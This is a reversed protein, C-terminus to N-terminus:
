PGQRRAPSPFGRCGVGILELQIGSGSQAGGGGGSCRGIAARCGKVLTPYAPDVEWM